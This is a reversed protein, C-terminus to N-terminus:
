MLMMVDILINNETKDDPTLINYASNDEISFGTNEMVKNIQDVM